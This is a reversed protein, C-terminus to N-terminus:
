PKLQLGFNKVAKQAELTALKEEIDGIRKNFSEMKIEYTQTEIKKKKMYDEQMEKILEVIREKEIKLKKAQPMLRLMQVRKIELEILEEIIGSLKKQYENIAIRYESMSMKKDKFCQKQVVRILENLMKEEEKLRKIRQKIARLKSLNYAGFSFIILLFASLSVEKPYEKIYYSLNGFEGKVELAYATQADKIRQSAQSFEKRELSLKALKLMRESKSIDIGKEEATKLLFDLEEIAKKSSLAQTVQEEIINYNDRITEVNFSLIAQESENLLENLYDYSLGANDLKEILERSKNLLIFADKQPLEHVELTIKKSDTYDSSGKKGKLTITLEQKGLELYAPSTIVLSIIIEQGPGLYSVQEPIINIYKIIKGSVSFILDNISINKDRNKFIVKIENQEGRVLQFDASTAVTETKANGSGGGGGSGSTATATPAVYDGDLSGCSTVYVGDSTSYCLFSISVQNTLNLNGNADRILDGSLNYGHSYLYFTKIGSTMSALSSFSINVNNYHLNNDTINTFNISLNGSANTFGSPLTWYFSVNYATNNENVTTSGMLNRLYGKLSFSSNTLYVSTPYSTMTQYLYPGAQNSLLNATTNRYRASSRGRFEDLTIIVNEEKIESLFTANIEITQNSKAAITYSNLNKIYEEDYYIRGEALDYTLRFDLSCNNDSYASDGTNNITINGVFKNENWGTVTDLDSTSTWTCDWFSELTYNSSTASDGATDNAWIRFTINSEYSPLSFNGNIITYAGKATLNLMSINSWSSNATSNKWQLIASDFNSDTDSINATININGGPDLDGTSNPSYSVSSFSPAANGRIVRTQTSNSHGAFDLVSINYTYSQGIILGSQTINLVYNGNGLNTLNFTFNSGALSTLNSSLNYVYNTGNWNYTVNALNEETISVNVVFSGSAGSNNSPTPSVYDILPFTTDLYTYGITANFLYPTYNQNETFFTAKYQFYSANNLSALSTYSANTYVTSFNADSCDSLSCITFQMTLNLFNTTLGDSMVGYVVGGTTYNLEAFALNVNLIFILVGFILLVKRKLLNCLM